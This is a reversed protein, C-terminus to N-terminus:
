TQFAGKKSGNSVCSAGRLQSAIYSICHHGEKFDIGVSLAPQGPNGFRKFVKTNKDVQNPKPCSKHNHLCQQPDSATNAQEIGM